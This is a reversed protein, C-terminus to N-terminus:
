PRAPPLAAGNTSNSPRPTAAWVNLTLNRCGNKAAFDKVALYLAKGVGQGRYREDVCLDDIYLSKDDVLINNDRVEEFICFAYGMLTTTTTSPPWFPLGRTM